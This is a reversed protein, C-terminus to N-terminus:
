VSDGHYLFGYDDFYRPGDAKTEVVYHTVYQQMHLPLSHSDLEKAAQLHLIAQRFYDDQVRPSTVNGLSMFAEAAKAPNATLRSTSLIANVTLLLPATMNQKARAADVARQLYDTAPLLLTRAEVYHAGNSREQTEAFPRVAIQPPCPSSEDNSSLEDEAQAISALAKQARLLWNRGIVTGTLRHVRFLPSLKCTLIDVDDPYLALLALWQRLCWDALDTIPGNDADAFAVRQVTSIFPIQWCRHSEDHDTDTIEFSATINRIAQLQVQWSDPATDLNTNVLEVTAMLTQVLQSNMIVFASVTSRNSLCSPEYRKSFTACNFSSFFRLFFLTLNIYVAAFLSVVSVIYGPIAKAV